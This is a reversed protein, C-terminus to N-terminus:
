YAKKYNAFLILSASLEVNFKPLFSSDKRVVITLVALHISDDPTNCLNYPAM